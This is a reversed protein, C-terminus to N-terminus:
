DAPVELSRQRCGRRDVNACSRFSLDRTLCIRVEDLRGDACSVAIGDRALGPNAAAFANEVDFASM